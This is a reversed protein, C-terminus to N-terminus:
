WVWKLRFWQSISKAWILALPKRGLKISARGTLDPRLVSRIEAPMEVKPLTLIFANEKVASEREHPYALQSLQGREKFQASLEHTNHSYLIFHVPVDGMSAHLSEVKGIQKENLHVLVDWENTSGVIAFDTGGQLFVGQMLEIDKTMVVGDIPSRLVAAAIDGVLKAEQIGYAESRKEAIQAEAERGNGRERQAELSASLKQKRVNELESELQRTDIKGLEQGAKVRDGERVLVREVRGSVEPVVKMRQRPVLTCDSEVEEMWPFLLLGGIFVAWLILKFRNWARETGTLARKVQRLRRTVFLAPLDHYDMAGQMAKGTTTALWEGLRHSPPLQKAGAPVDFAAEATSEALLAGIVKKDADLIQIILVSAVQSNEFYAVDAVQTSGRPHVILAREPAPVTGPEALALLEKRSLAIVWPSLQPAQGEQAPAPMPERPTHADVFATMTKVMTSRREVVEQGSIAMMEWGSGRLRVVACRESGILDRSYNSTLRCVELPDLSGALDTSFKLLHQLRQSEVVLNGVQRSQLHTEVHAALQAMFTAFEAYNDRTVYAQLWVQLVGLVQDKLFLPVHVFPYPTRNPSPQQPQPAAQGSIQSLQAQLSGPAGAAAPAKSDASLVLPKKTQVVESVARLLVGRQQEDTQFLSSALEVEAALQLENKGDASKQGVLWIAGGKGDCAAVARQIFQAYFEESRMESKALATIEDVLRQIRARAAEISQQQSMAARLTPLM